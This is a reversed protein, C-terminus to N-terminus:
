WVIGPTTGRLRLASAPPSPYPGDIPLAATHPDGPQARHAGASAPLGLACSAPMNGPNAPSPLPVNCRAGVSISLHVLPFGDYGVIRFSVVVPGYSQLSVIVRPRSRIENGDARLITERQEALHYTALHPQVRSAFHHLRHPIFHRSKIWPHHRIFEHNHRIMNVPNDNQYPRYPCVGTDAGVGPLWLIGPLWLPNGGVNDNDSTTCWNLVRVVFRYM